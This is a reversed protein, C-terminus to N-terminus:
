TVPPRLPAATGTRAGAAPGALDPCDDAGLSAAAQLAALIRDRGDAGLEPYCPLYVIAAM